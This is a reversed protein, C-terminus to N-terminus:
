DNNNCYHPCPRSFEFYTSATPTLLTDKTLDKEELHLVNRLPIWGVSDQKGLHLYFYCNKGNSIVENYRTGISDTDFKDFTYYEVRDEKRFTSPPPYTYLQKSIANTDVNKWALILQKATSCLIPEDTFNPNRTEQCQFTSWNLLPKIPDLPYVPYVIVGTDKLLTVMPTFDPKGTEDGEPGSELLGMTIRINVSDTATDSLLSDLAHFFSIRQISDLMYSIVKESQVIHNDFFFDDKMDIGADNYNDILQKAQSESFLGLLSSKEKQNLQESTIKADESKENASNSCSIIGISLSLFLIATILLRTQQQILLFM